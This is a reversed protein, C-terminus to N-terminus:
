CPPPGRASRKGLRDLSTSALLPSPPLGFEVLPAAFDEIPPPLLLLDDPGPDTPTESVVADFRRGLLAHFAETRSVQQTDWGESDLPGGSIM